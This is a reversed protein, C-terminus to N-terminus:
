RIPRTGSGEFFAHAGSTRVSQTACYVNHDDGSDSKHWYVALDGKFVRM